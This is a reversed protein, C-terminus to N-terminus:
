HAAEASQAGSTRAANHSPQSAKGRAQLFLNDVRRTLMAAGDAGLINTLVSHFFSKMIRGTVGRDACLLELINEALPSLDWGVAHPDLISRVAEEVKARDARSIHTLVNGIHGHQRFAAVLVFALDDPALCPVDAASTGNDSPCVAPGAIAEVGGVPGTQNHSDITELM